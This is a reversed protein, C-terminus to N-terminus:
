ESVGSKLMKATLIQHQNKLAVLYMGDNLNATSIKIVNNGKLLKIKQNYVIMGMTNTIVLESSIAFPSFAYLNTFDAVPNPAIILESIKQTEPLRASLPEEFVGNILYDIFQTCNDKNMYYLSFSLFAAKYSGEYLIGVPQGEFNCTATGPNYESHYTYIVSADSEPEIIETTRIHYHYAEYTKATDIRLDNYPPANHCAGIFYCAQNYGVSKIKLYKSATEHNLFTINGNAPPGGTLASTASFATILMKGGHQLYYGTEQLNKSLYNNDIRSEQHIIVTSYPGIDSLNFGKNEHADLFSVDFHRTIYKYFNDVTEDSPNMIGGKSDDVILIGHDLTVTAPVAWKTVPFSLNGEADSAYVTIYYKYGAMLDNFIFLTDATFYQPGNNNETTDISVHYGTVSNDRNKQWCATLSTGNAPNIIELGSVSSPQDLVKLLGALSAKIVETCYVINCNQVLDRVSHYYQSFRYESFYVVRFGEGHYSWSDSSENDSSTYLPQLVSYQQCAQYVQQAYYESKPYVHIKIKFDNSDAATAIMDHNFVIRIKEGNQRAKHADHESGYLGYEEAAFAMFYITYRPQFGAQNLVRCVELAATVGSANDDAGPSVIGEPMSDYHGGFVVKESTDAWGYEMAKVNYQWYSINNSNILFSDLYVTDAGYSQFKGAIYLAVQKRNNQLANRTGMNQLGNLHVMVSDSSVHNMLTIITSDTIKPQALLTTSFPLLLFFFILKKM